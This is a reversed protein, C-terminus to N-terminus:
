PITNLLLGESHRSCNHDYGRPGATRHWWRFYLVRDAGPIGFRDLHNCRDESRGLDTQIGTPHSEGAALYINRHYTIRVNENGKM